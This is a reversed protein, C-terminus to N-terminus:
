SKPLVFEEATRGLETAFFNTSPLCLDQQWCTVPSPNEAISSLVPRTIASSAASLSNQVSCASEVMPLGPNTPDACGFSVWKPSPHPVAARVDELVQTMRRAAGRLALPEFSRPPRDHGRVKLQWEIADALAVPSAPPVLRDHRSDAIEPIGGVDSAVFPTGCAVSEMLVNPVGESLSPLVTMDAARYWDTLQNQNQSGRLEVTGELGMQSIQRKLEHKLPGDGILYCRFSVRRAALLRCAHLLHIHGKVPVLRGVSVLAAGKEPIGLERRAALRDGPSFQARDVGRRIVRIKRSDIGDRTLTEAIHASVTVVLDANWLTDLIKQKRSGNRGLILVDSGGVVMVAPVGHQHAMRIAVESDPHTWYSLVLDPRFSSMARRFQRQVSWWMWRGYQSRLVKPTYYSTVYEAPVGSVAQFEPDNLGRPLDGKFKAQWADVFSVPSVVRVDHEASLGAIMSRNFTGLGPNSPNPFAYSYFLVKM